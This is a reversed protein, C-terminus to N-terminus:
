TVMSEICPSLTNNELSLRDLTRLTYPPQIIGQDRTAGVYLQQYEDEPEFANPQVANAPLDGNNCGLGKRLDALTHAGAGVLRFVQASQRAEKRAKEETGKERVM